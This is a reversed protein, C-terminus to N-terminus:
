IHILSLRVATGMAEELYKGPEVDGPHGFPSRGIIDAISELHGPSWDPSGGLLHAIAHLATLCDRMESNTDM